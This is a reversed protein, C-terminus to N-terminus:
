YGVDDHAWSFPKRNEQMLKNMQAIFKEAVKEGYLKKGNRMNQLLMEDRIAYDVTKALFEGSIPPILINCHADMVTEPRDTNFRATFCPKNLLNMEEQVGGSDTLAALCQKSQYFELVNAYEPWVESHFFNKEKKLRDIVPRLNYKELSDKTTNMEIFCVQHGKKVLENMGKIIAEFRQRIQNGKRHIDVRIWEGHELTPYVNFISQTPQEKRKKELAEVVVGGTVWIKNEPHGERLLHQRNLELPAFLFESAKSGVYTDWQEPFPENMLLKWKGNFQQGIFDEATLKDAYSVCEPTMSRLGAENHIAKEERNFMWAAPVIGCLITDGLVVPMVTVDSWQRKLYNALWSIKTFLEASKQALNGRIELNVATKGAYDFEKEGYTLNADYHQNSNVILYPIGQKEAEIISGYFKYFCPKTGIVFILVWKRERRAREMMCNIIADNINMPLYKPVIHIEQREKKQITIQEPIRRLAGFMSEYNDYQKETTQM